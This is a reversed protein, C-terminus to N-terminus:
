HGHVNLITIRSDELLRDVHNIAQNITMRPDRVITENIASTVSLEGNRLERKMEEERHIDGALSM